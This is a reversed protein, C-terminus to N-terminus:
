FTSYFYKLEYGNYYITKLTFVLLVIPVILLPLQLSLHLLCSIICVISFFLSILKILLPCKRASVYIMEIESFLIESNTSKKSSVILKDKEVNLFDFTYTSNM